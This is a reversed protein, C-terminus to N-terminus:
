KRIQEWWAGSFHADLTDSSGTGEAPRAVYAAIELQVGHEQAFAWAIERLPVRDVENGDEDLLVQYVWIGQGMEDGERRVEITVEQSSNPNHQRGDNTM